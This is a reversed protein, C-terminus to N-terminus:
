AGYIAVAGWSRRCTSKVLMSVVNTGFWDRLTALTKTNLSWKMFCTNAYTVGSWVAFVM